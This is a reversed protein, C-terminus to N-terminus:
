MFFPFPLKDWLDGVDEGSEGFEKLIPGMIPGFIAYKADDEMDELRAIFFPLLSVTGALIGIAVGQAGTLQKHTVTTIESTVHTGDKNWNYKTETVTKSWIPDRLAEMIGGEDLGIEGGEILAM